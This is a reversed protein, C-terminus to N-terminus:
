FLRFEPNTVIPVRGGRWCSNIEPNKENESLCKWYKASEGLFERLKLGRSQVQTLLLGGKKRPQNTV